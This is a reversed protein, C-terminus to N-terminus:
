AIKGKRELLNLIPNTMFTTMLAMLVMMTFIEPTLIGLDYGINLVVLEMLGRTNMLAGIAMSEKMGSGTIRAALASGGLKGIVAILLIVAFVGWLSPDSLLGIETRLGTYVFFLPLLLVLAVHEIKGTLAQRFAKDQPMIVGALFAGFLAHIGIIESCYASLLMVIFFLAIRSNPLTGTGKTHRVSRHLLPKIIKLMIGVYIVALLLTILSGTLSGAKAIAIVFALLCWATVDDAAACTMAIAGLRTRTMGRERIIRALVPFATISMAIGMFLSFAYFPIHPPAYTRYLFYSLGIGLSFPIVISAHSIIVAVGVRDKLMDKDLEMGVIFMFLVLGINSIMQITGLSSEPFIFASIDPFFFGFLSPGLLIGATMEGVVRPQGIRQFINGIVQCAVIIVTIQLLLIAVPHQLIARYGSWFTEKSHQMVSAAGAAPLELQRGANLIFFIIFSLGAITLLYFLFHTKAPKM